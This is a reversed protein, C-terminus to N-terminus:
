LHVIKDLIIYQQKDGASQELPMISVYDGAKLTDTYIINDTYSNNIDHNHSEYAADGGGGGRNQTSSILTGKATREYGILLYESIWVEEKELVFNKYAIQINPPPAIIKGIAMVPSNNNKSVGSFINIMEIYPNKKM